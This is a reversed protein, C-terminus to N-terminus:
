ARYEPLAALGLLLLPLLAAWSWPGPGDAARPLGAGQTRAVAMLFRLGALRREGGSTLIITSDAAAEAPEWSAASLRLQRRRNYSFARQSDTAASPSSDEAFDLAGSVATAARVAGGPVLGAESIILSQGVVDMALLAVGKAMHSDMLAGAREDTERVSNGQSSHGPVTGDSEGPAQADLRTGLGVSGHGSGRGAESAEPSPEAPSLGATSGAGFSLTPNVAGAAREGDGRGPVAMIDWIKESLRRLESASPANVGKNAVAELPEQLLATKEEVERRVRKMAPVLTDSAPPTMRSMDPSSLLAGRSVAADLRPSSPLTRLAEGIIVSSQPLSPIPDAPKELGMWAGLGRLQAAGPLAMIRDTITNLEPSSVGRQLQLTAAFNPAVPMVPGARGAGAVSVDAAAAWPAASVLFSALVLLRRM